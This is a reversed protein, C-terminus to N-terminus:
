ASMKNKQSIVTPAYIVTRTVKKSTIALRKNLTRLLENNQKALEILSERKELIKNRAIAQEQEEIKALLEEQKIESALLKIVSNLDEQASMMVDIEELDQAYEFIAEMRTLEVDEEEVEEIVVNFGTSSLKEKEQDNKYSLMSSSRSDETLSLIESNIKRVQSQYERLKQQIENTEETDNNIQSIIAQKEEDISSTKTDVNQTSIPSIDTINASFNTTSYSTDVDNDLSTIDFATLNPAQYTDYIEPTKPANLKSSMDIVKKTKVTQPTIADNNSTVKLVKKSKIAELNLAEKTRNLDLNRDIEDIEDFQNILTDMSKVVLETLNKSIEQEQILERVKELKSTRETIHNEDVTVRELFADNVRTENSIEERKATAVALERRYQSLKQNITSDEQKKNDIKKSVTNQADDKSIENNKKIDVKDNKTDDLSKTSLELKNKNLDNQIQKKNENTKQIEAMLKRKNERLEDHAQVTSDNQEIIKTSIKEKNDNFEKRVRSINNTTSSIKEVIAKKNKERDLDSKAINETNSKELIEKRYQIQKDNRQKVIKSYDNNNVNESKENTEVRDVRNTEKVEEVAKTASDKTDVYLNKQQKDSNSIDKNNISMSNFNNTATYEIPRDLKIKM